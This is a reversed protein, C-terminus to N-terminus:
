HKGADPGDADILQGLECIAALPATKKEVDRYEANVKDGDNEGSSIHRPEM